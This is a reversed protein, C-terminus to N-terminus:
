ASGPSRKGPIRTHADCGEHVSQAPQRDRHQVALAALIGPTAEPTPGDDITLAVGEGGQRHLVPIPLGRLRNMVAAISM